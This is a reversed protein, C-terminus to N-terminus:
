QKLLFERRREVFTKVSSENTGMVGSQFREFSYLKRTDIKVQDAILAQYKQALPGFTDWDLWTSAIEHVIELYRARLAPVELLKSRLPKTGDTLGSLPDLQASRSGLAGFGRQEGGFAENFDHPILHFRGAPDEYINYDSARTWYGDSNVLAMEVALFTITEDVDLIPALAAELKDPPTENLVRCLRILDAWAKPDDKSKIEYLSRYPAPDDGLYELGSRGRPVGPARWRAGDRTHFWESLFDKDVQQSNVYVGWNEGNIVVRVFNV